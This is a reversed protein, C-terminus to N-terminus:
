SDTAGAAAHAVTIRGLDIRIHAVPAPDAAEARPPEATEDEGYIGLLMKVPHPNSRVESPLHAVNPNQSHTLDESLMSRLWDDDYIAVHEGIPVIPPWGVRALDYRLWVVVSGKRAPELLHREALELREAISTGARKRPDDPFAEGRAMAISAAEDNLISAVTSRFYRESRGSAVTLDGLLRAAAEAGAQDSRKAAALLDKFAARATEGTPLKDHLRTAVRQLRRRLSADAASGTGSLRQRCSVLEEIVNPDGVVLTGRLEDGCAQLSREVDQILSKWNNSFASGWQHPDHLWAQLESAITPLPLVEPMPEPKAAAGLARVIIELEAETTGHGTTM